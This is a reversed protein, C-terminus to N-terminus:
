IEIGHGEIATFNAQFTHLGHPLIDHTPKDTADQRFIQCYRHQVKHTILILSSNIFM